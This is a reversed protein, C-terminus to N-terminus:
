WRDPKYYTIDDIWDTHALVFLSQIPLSSVIAYVPFSCRRSLSHGHLSHTVESFSDTLVSKSSFDAFCIFIRMYSEQMVLLFIVKVLFKFASAISLLWYM